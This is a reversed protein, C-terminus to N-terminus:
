DMTRKVCEKDRPDSKLMGTTAALYQQRRNHLVDNLLSSTFHVCRWAIYNSMVRKPTSQLITELKQIYNKDLVIVTETEDVKIVNNLNWNIFELWNIYPVIEQLQQITYPNYLKSLNRREEAPM